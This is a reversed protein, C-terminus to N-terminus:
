KGNKNDGRTKDSVVDDKITEVSAKKDRADNRSDDELDSVGRVSKESQAKAIRALREAHEQKAKEVSGEPYGRAKSASELDILGTEIDTSIVEPDVDLITAADIESEIKSLDAQSIKDNFLVSVIRKIIIKKFTTSPVSHSLKKLDDAEKRKEEDTKLSYRKPYKITAEKISTKEYASWVKAVMRELTELELGIYSLGAELGQQDQAKSEASAMKPEVNTLALHVLQRIEEKLQQQKKMSAILPEPSPHIFGPREIDKPYRVGTTTGVNKENDNNFTNTIRADYQETYLPFNSRIAYSMDSSALNLLGIQYDAVDVLLSDSLEALAFPILPIDLIGTEISKWSEDYITFQVKNDVLELFRYREITDCPLGTEVDIEDVFDKLLLKTFIFSGDKFEIVWNLINLADYVYIYPHKGIVDSKLNGVIRPMDVYVGVKGKTLLKPLLHRGIFSNMTSGKLDVGGSLGSIADQYTASGDLRVVDTIRQFISNKIEDIASKAFAPNYTFSKRTTFDSSDEVTSFTQLYEEIFDDGGSYVLEFKSWEEQKSLYEPHIKGTM